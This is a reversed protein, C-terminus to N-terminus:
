VGDTEVDVIRHGRRRVVEGLDVLLRKLLVEAIDNAEAIRPIVELGEPEGDARLATVIAVFEGTAM